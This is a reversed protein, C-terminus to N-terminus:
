TSSRWARATPLIQISDAVPSYALENFRLAMRDDDRRALEGELERRLSRDSFEIQIQGNRYNTALWAGLGFGAGSSRSTLERLTLGGARMILSMLPDLM